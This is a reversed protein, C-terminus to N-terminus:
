LEVGQRRLAAQVEGVDVAEATVGKRSAVAAAVGAAQGIVMCKPMSRLVFEEQCVSKGSGCLIGSVGAPVMVGFPVDCTHNSRFERM